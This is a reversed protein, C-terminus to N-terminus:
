SPKGVLIKSLHGGYYTLALSSLFGVVSEIGFSVERERWAAQMKVSKHSLLLTSETSSM